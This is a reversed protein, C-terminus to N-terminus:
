PPKEKIEKAGNENWEARPTFRHKENGKRSRLERLREGVANNRGPMYFRISILCWIGFYARTLAEIAELCMNMDCKFVGFVSIM